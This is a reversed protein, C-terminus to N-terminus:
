HCMYLECKLMDCRKRVYLSRGSVSHTAVVSPSGISGRNLRLLPKRNKQFYSPPTRLKALIFGPRPNKWILLLNSAHWLHMSCNLIDKYPFVSVIQHESVQYNSPSTLNYEGLHLILMPLYESGTWKRETCAFPRIFCERGTAFCIQM